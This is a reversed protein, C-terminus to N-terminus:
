RGYKLTNKDIYREPMLLNMRDTPTFSRDIRDMRQKGSSAGIHRVLAQKDKLFLTTLICSEDM